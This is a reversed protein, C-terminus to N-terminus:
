VAEPLATTRGSWDLVRWGRRRAEWRLRADPRVVRPRDVHELMPLDTISDTYFSAGDLSLGHARAFTEAKVVKGRGYCVPPVLRGTLRGDSVEFETALADDLGFHQVACEAVYASTSSLLVLRDGAERHAEIAERAGPAASRVVEADWWRRSESRLAAEERGAVARAVEAYASTIDLVGLKYAAFYGVAKLSQRRGIRGLRREYRVWLAASNVTLLTGDLDFFAIRRM